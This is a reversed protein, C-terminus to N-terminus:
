FAETLRVDGDGCSKNDTSNWMAQNINYLAVGGIINLADDLARAASTSVTVMGNSDVGSDLRVTRM